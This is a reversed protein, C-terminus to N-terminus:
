IAPGSKQKARYRAEGLRYRMAWENLWSKCFSEFAATDIQEETTPEAEPDDSEIEVEVTVDVLVDDAVLTEQPTYDFKTANATNIRNLEGVMAIVYADVGVIEEDDEIRKTLIAYTQTALKEDDKSVKGRKGDGAAKIQAIVDAVTLSKGHNKKRAGSRYGFNTLFGDVIIEQDIESLDALNIDDTVNFVIKGERLNVKHNIKMKNHHNHNLRADCFAISVKGYDGQRAGM